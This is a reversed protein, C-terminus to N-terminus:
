TKKPSLRASIANTLIETLESSDKYRYCQYHRVYFELPFNEEGVGEKYVYLTEIGLGHAFGAEFFVSPRNGTLDVVLFRSQRIETLAKDYIKEAFHEYKIYMPKFGSKKIAEEIAAASENMSDDFWVAIFGQDSEQNSKEFKKAINWGNASLVAHVDVNTEGLLRVYGGEELLKILAIFETANKAYALPYDDDYLLPIREGYYQSKGRLRQLLKETKQEVDDLDPIQHQKRYDDLNYTLFEPSKGGLEHMERSLGSLAQKISEDQNHQMTFFVEYSASYRGCRKCDVYYVDREHDIKIEVDGLGCLYCKKVEDTMAM